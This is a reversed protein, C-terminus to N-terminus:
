MDAVRLLIKVLLRQVIFSNEYFICNKSDHKYFSINYILPRGTLRGRYRNWFMEM